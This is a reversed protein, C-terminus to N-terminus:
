TPRSRTRAVWSARPWRSRSPRRGRSCSSPRRHGNATRGPGPGAAPRASVPPRPLARGRRVLPRDDGAATRARGRRSRDDRDPRVRPRVAGVREPGDRRAARPHARHVPLRPGPGGGRGPQARRVPVGGALRRPRHRPLRADRLVPDDPAVPADPDAFSAALSAGHVPQQPVGAVVDPVAVGAADLLTPLLDIAHGYQHRVAGHDAIGAPWSVICPESVGGRYTERKWRRFPTTGAWTWGWSYHPFTDVGGWGDYHRLNDELREPVFNFFLSENFTGRARGRRQRRQRVRGRRDHRRARGPRRRLRARPRRPPRDPHPVRRLGGDPPRVHAPRRPRPRGLRARRPRARVAPRPEPRRRRGGAPRVGRRPLRGVGPRLAGPLARDVRARRPPPRPGRRPRLLPLVAQRPRRRARGQDDPHRPRRPRRQPPLRGRARGAAPHAHQGAGPRPVVPQHRGGHVRLLARLGPRAAVHPLPGREVDRHAPQPAVQRGRVHQVRRRAPHRAPVGPRPRGHRPLRPLGDVARGPRGGRGRPPQARESCARTPSCLPTAHYNAYRLGRAALRDLTPMECGGGFPSPQAFGVDDLVILVINPAGDRARPIDPWAPQSDRLTRGIRGAFGATATGDNTTSM